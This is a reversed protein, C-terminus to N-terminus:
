YEAIIILFIVLYFFEKLFYVHLKGTKECTNKVSPKLHYICKGINNQWSHKTVNALKMSYILKWNPYMDAKGPTVVCALTFIFWICFILIFYHLFCVNVWKSFVSEKFIALINSLVQHYLILFYLSLRSGDVFIIFISKLSINKRVM